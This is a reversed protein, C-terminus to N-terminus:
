LPRDRELAKSKKSSAETTSNERKQKKEHLEARWHLTLHPFDDMNLNLVFFSPTFVFCVFIFEVVFVNPPGSLMMARM